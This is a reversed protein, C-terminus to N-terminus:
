KDGGVNYGEQLSHADEWGHSYGENYFDKRGKTYGAFVGICLILLGVMTELVM